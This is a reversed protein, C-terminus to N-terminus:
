RKRPKEVIPAPASQPEPLEIYQATQVGAKIMLPIVRPETNGMRVELVHAGAPLRVTIPTAGADKGDVTVRANSPRSQVVLEGEGAKPAGTDRSWLAIVAGLLAVIVVAMALLPGRSARAPAAASAEPAEFASPAAPEAPLVPSAVAPVTEPEAATPSAPKTREADLMAGIRSVWEELRTTTTVYSRDSALVSEFGLQADSPSQYATGIEFQLTRALWSGLFSSLPTIEGNRCETASEILQRLQGPYEDMTLPRGLLVALAVMGVANADARQNSRPLGASPPMAVRFDRWLRDRGLNLKELAPGFAHEAIILRGQPTVILREIGLAGIAADRNHRSYLSVAPLLQRMLTILITIDLVAGTAHSKALLESLRWGSTYDSVLLLQEPSPRDIRRLQVYSTHRVSASRAVREALATVFGPNSVLHPALELLEVQDGRDTDMALTRRGFGDLATPSSENVDPLVRIM